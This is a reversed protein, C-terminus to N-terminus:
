KNISCYLKDFADAYHRAILRSGADNPHVGDESWCESPANVCAEAFIGDMPIYADAFERALKRMVDIKPNLDERFWDKDETPLLFPEIILIKANTKEKVETLLYRVNKEFDENSLWPVGADARHWIDNIGILLSFFDPKLDTCDRDWRQTLDYTQQGSIGHNYFEFECEPHRGKIAEIAYKVYGWGYDFPNGHDRCGATISDGQFVIRM